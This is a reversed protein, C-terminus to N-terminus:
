KRAFRYERQTAGDPATVTITFSEGTPLPVDEGRALPKGAMAMRAWTGSALACFSAAKGPETRLEYSDTYPSFAPTCTAGTFQVWSLLANNEPTLGGTFLLKVNVGAFHLDTMYDGVLSMSGSGFSDAASRLSPVLGVEGADVVRQVAAELNALYTDADLVHHNHGGFFKTLTGKTKARFGQIASLYREMASEPNGFQLWGSDPIEARSNGLADSGFVYGTNEEVAALCGPTHGPVEYVRVLAGGLSFGTGERVDTVEGELRYGFQELLPLDRRDMYVAVGAALMANAQQIHDPHGHLVLADFPLGGTLGDIFGKLDGDPDNGLDILLGREEGRIFYMKDKDFDEICYVAPAAERVIRYRYATRAPLAIEFVFEAEPSDEMGPKAAIARIRNVTVCAEDRKTESVLGLLGDEVRFVPSDRTPRTGDATYHIQAGPTACLLNLHMGSLNYRGAEPFCTPIAVQM